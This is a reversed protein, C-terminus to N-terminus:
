KVDTYPRAVIAYWKYFGYMGGKKWFNLLQDSSLTVNGPDNGNHDILMGKSKEQEWSDYVYFEDQKKNFGLITFYHQYDYKEGLVIIPSGASLREQLFAIRERDSYSRLKPIETKIDQKQLEAKLGFPLIGDNGIKWKMQDYLEMSNVESGNLIRMVAAVSFAGCEISTQSFNYASPYDIKYEKAIKYTDYDSKSFDFRFSVLVSTMIILSVLFFLKLFKYM